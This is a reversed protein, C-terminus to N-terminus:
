RDGQAPKRHDDGSAPGRRLRAGIPPIHRRLAAAEAASPLTTAVDQDGLRGTVRGDSHFELSGPVADPGGVTVSAM